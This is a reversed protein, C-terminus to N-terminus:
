VINLTYLKVKLDFKIYCADLVIEGYDIHAESYLHTQKNKMDLIISDKANWNLAEELQSSKQNNEIQGLISNSNILVLFLMFVFYNGKIVEIQLKFKNKNKFM